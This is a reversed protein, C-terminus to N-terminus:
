SLSFTINNGFKSLLDALTNKPKHTVATVADAVGPWISESAANTTLRARTDEGSLGINAMGTVGSLWNKNGVDSAIALATPSGIPNGHGVSLARLTADLSSKGPGEAFSAPDRLWALSQDLFPQRDARAQNAIEMLKDSQQSSGFASILGPAAEGLMNLFDDTSAEGSLLKSLASKAADPGIKSALTSLLSSGAGGASAGAGAAIDAAGVTGAAASDIGAGYLPSAGGLVGAGGGAFNGLGGGVMESLISDSLVSGSLGGSTAGGGVGSFPGLGGAAGGVLAFPLLPGVTGIAQDLLNGPDNQYDRFGQWEGQAASWENGYQAAVADPGAIMAAVSYPDVEGSLGFSGSAPKAAVIAAALQEDTQGPSVARLIDIAETPQGIAAYNPLMSVVQELTAPAQGPLPTGNPDVWIGGQNYVPQGQYYMSGGFDQFAAPDLAM